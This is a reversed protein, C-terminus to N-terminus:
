SRDEKYSDTEFTRDFPDPISLFGHIVSLLVFYATFTIGIFIGGYAYVIPIRLNPSLQMTTMLLKILSFGTGIVVGSTIFIITKSIMIIIKRPHNPLIKLLVETGIMKGQRVAVSMGVSVFWIQMYRSLEELWTIPIHINRFIIGALVSLVMIGFTIIVIFKAVVEVKEAIKELIKLVKLM